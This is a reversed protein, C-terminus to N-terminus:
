PWTRRMVSPRLDWGCEFEGRFYLSTSEAYHDRIKQIKSLFKEITNVPESDGPYQSPSRIVRPYLAAQWPRAATLNAGTLDAFHLKTKTLNARWLNSDTLTAIELDANSLDASRLDAKVLNAGALNAGALPINGRSDLKGADRFIGYLSADEFDPTFSYGGNPINRRRENWAEVGELLWAIHERNAM